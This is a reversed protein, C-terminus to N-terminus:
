TQLTANYRLAFKVGKMFEVADNETEIREIM